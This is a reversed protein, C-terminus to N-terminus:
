NKIWRWNVKSENEIKKIFNWNKKKRKEKDKPGLLNKKEKVKPDGKLEQELESKLFNM